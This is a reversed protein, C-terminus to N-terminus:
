AGRYLRTESRWSEDLCDQIIFGYWYKAIPATALHWLSHADIVRLIPPFDFLELATASTTLLVFVAAKNVFDPKYSPSRGPFRSIWPTPLAFMLWLFNHSLGVVMNFVINYGYDFRPSLGLYSIHGLYVLVCFTSWARRTVSGTPSRTTLPSPSTPYLHFIRIVAM